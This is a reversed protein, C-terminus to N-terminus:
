TTSTLRRFEESYRTAQDPDNEITVNEDNKFEANNSWNYSGTIVIQNDIVCFKDHMIGGRKAKQIKKTSLESYNIGTNRNIGDDYIALQVDLGSKKKELLKDFLTRNTFWAMVLWISIRASDLVHLIREQIEQFHAENRVPLRRDIIGGHINYVGNEFSIYYHEKKLIDNIQSVTEPKGEIENIIQILLQRCENTGSISLLRSVVYEKRSPRQGNRKNIDPLGYEDYLDSCGYQNFLDVLQPGTRRPPFNDGTIFATLKNISFESLRMYLNCYNINEQPRVTM